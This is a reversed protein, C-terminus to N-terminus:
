EERIDVSALDPCYWASDSSSPAAFRLFSTSAEVGFIDTPQSDGAAHSLGQGIPGRDLGHGFISGVASYAGSPRTTLGVYTHMQYSVVGPQVRETNSARSYPVCTLSGNDPTTDTIIIYSNDSLAAESTASVRGFAHGQGFGSQDGKEPSLTPTYSVSSRTDMAEITKRLMGDLSCEATDMSSSSLKESLKQCRQSVEPDFYATPRGCLADILGFAEQVIDKNTEELKEVRAELDAIAQDKRQRYAFQAERIQKRRRDIRSEGIAVVRPRGRHSNFKKVQDNSV